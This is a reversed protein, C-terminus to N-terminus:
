ILRFVAGNVLMTPTDNFEQRFTTPERTKLVKEKPNTGVNKDRNLILICKKKPFIFIKFKKKDKIRINM